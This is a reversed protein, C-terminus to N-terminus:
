LEGWNKGKKITVKLPVCLKYTHEMKEKIVRIVTDAIDEAAECIIEDHIQLLMRAKKSDPELVKSLDVMAKKIIDASSGQIPTNIAMREGLMRIRNIRSHIEPIYRRRGLITEVYGHKHAFEIQKTMYKKVKPYKIFYAQIFANAQELPVGIDKSLGFASMGYVLGFNIRKAIEREKKTVKGQEKNFIESATRKHVDEDNLFADCLADDKSIHALLRLDIQSYDSAVLLYGEDATFAKRIDQGFESKVPINQLNPNSSSLRGTTTNTHNFSTHLRKTKENIIKPLVDVYTSKIKAAERYKLIKEPFDSFQKLTNLVYESTSAGTKTKQIVPLGMVEFLIHALQKPSNINFESGAGEHINKTLENIKKSLVDSLRLLHDKEVLIGAQEMQALIKTFPAEINNYVEELNGEKLKDKIIDIVELLVEARIYVTEEESYDPLDKGIYKKLISKLNQNSSDILYGAVVVDFFSMEDTLIGYNDFLVYLEKLDEVCLEILSRCLNVFDDKWENINNLLLRIVGINKDYLVISEFKENKKEIVLSILKSKVQKLSHFDKLKIKESAHAEDKSFLKRIVAHFEMKELFEKFEISQKLKKVTFNDLNFNISVKKDLDVLKYSLLLNDKEQIIKNKIKEDIIDIHELIYEIGGYKNIISKATVKGIGAVGPINDSSDGTLAIFDRMYAPDIGYVDRVRDKDYLVDKPEALVKVNDDVLQLVDKDSSIILVDLGLKVAKHVLAAILDDAEYGEKEILKLDMSKVSEKILPIQSLLEDPMKERHAKYDAYIENRFTERKYDFCVACYEPNDRELIKIIMRVFGYVANVNVNKSTQLPPLAYFARYIYANGDFIYFKKKM